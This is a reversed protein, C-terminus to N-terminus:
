PAMTWVLVEAAGVGTLRLQAGESLRLADGEVLPGVTEVEVEGTAV